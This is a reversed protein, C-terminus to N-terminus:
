YLRYKTIRKVVQIPEPDFAYAVPINDIPISNKAVIGIQIDFLSPSQQVKPQTIRNFEHGFTQKGLVKSYSEVVGAQPIMADSMSANKSTPATPATKESIFMSPISSEEGFNRHYLREGTDPTAREVGPRAILHESQATTTTEGTARNSVGTEMTQRSAFAGKTAGYAQGVGLLSTAFNITNWANEGKFGLKEEGTAVSRIQEEAGYIAGAAGVGALGKNVLGMVGTVKSSVGLTAISLATIGLTSLLSLKSVKQGSKSAAIASASSTVGAAIGAAASIGAAAAQLGAAAVASLGFTFFSAIGAVVSLASLVTATRAAATYHYKPM